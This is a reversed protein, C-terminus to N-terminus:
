FQSFTLYDSQVAINLTTFIVQSLVYLCGSSVCYNWAKWVIESLWVEDYDLYKVLCFRVFEFVLTAIGLCIYFFRNEKGSLFKNHLLILFLLVSSGYFVIGKQDKEVLSHSLSAATGIMVSGGCM